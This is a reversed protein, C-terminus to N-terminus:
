AGAQDLVAQCAAKTAILGDWEAQSEKLEPRKYEIGARVDREMKSVTRRIDEDPLNLVTTEATRERGGLGGISWWACLTM